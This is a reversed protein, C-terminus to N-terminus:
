ARSTLGQSRYGTQVEVGLATLQREAKKSLSEVYAPLVRPASEILVVRAQAPIIHRFDHALTHRSIEALAGALEVGTPGGGVIVFTMWQRRRESDTEREAVEFASLVRRRIELADEISKLGPAHRAWEDHGFYSHSAGTALILFDYSMGGDPFTLRRRKLDVAEAEALLVEANPQRRLVRRIPAAINSPNLGATAVQYLLPQFLHHNRRDILTVRVPAHKFVRAAYLGGFGGGVIVVHPRGDLM